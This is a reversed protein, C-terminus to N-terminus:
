SLSCGLMSFPRGAFAAERKETEPTNLDESIEAGMM